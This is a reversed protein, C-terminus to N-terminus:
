GDIRSEGSKNLNSLIGHILKDKKDEVQDLVFSYRKLPRQTLGCNVVPTDTKIGPGFSASPKLVNQSCDVVEEVYESGEKRGTEKEASYWSDLIRLLSSDEDSIRPKEQGESGTLSSAEEESDSIYDDSLTEYDPRIRRPRVTEESIGQKVGFDRENRKLGKDSVPGLEEWPSGLDYKTPENSLDGDSNAIATSILNNEVVSRHATPLHSIKAVNSSPMIYSSEIKVGPMIQLLTALKQYGLRQIDLNYGYTDLFLKRFCSMNFGEPHEKVIGDLLKQCDAFIERRSKGAPKKNVPPSVGSHVPNQHIMEREHEQLKQSNSQSTTSSFIARLGNSNTTTSSTSIKRPPRILKFPYTQSPCEEIWRKGSILLDVLHLLESQSLSRLALPGQKQINQALQERGRSQLVLVSGNPPTNIFEEMEKWFSEKSFVEDRGSDVTVQNLNDSPQENLNESNPAKRWFKCWSIIQKFFSPHRSSKDPYAEGSGAVKDDTGGESSSSAFTAVDCTSERCKEESKPKETNGGCTSGKESIDSSLNESGDKGAFWKRLTRRFFGVENNVKEIEKSNNVKESLPNTDQLKMQSKISKMPPEIVNLERTPSLSPNEDTGKTGSGDESNVKPTIAFSPEENNTVPRTAIGPGSEVSEAIKPAVSSVFQQGNAASQLKLIDPMSLLFHSFKKYGYLDKDISMNSKRLESSLEAISIGKPYLKLIHRIQKVVAKPVPRIKLDANSESVEEARSCAPQDAVAFVDELPVRYHGYWSGYPGDPPQNFYKGTFNQGKVLANWHWMISAASCLVSPATEPSALLINYNNMRLRHLVGAFDRDGTILFLHAPPPNQSVWCMLDVLLSRDASNKGGHPIHTLNIGTASLAEQNSRSLQLMDGFATVQVPGKIGNARVAATISESVKFVNAGTPLACNEFDWWVSVRVNRSEEDQRRSPFSPTSSSH